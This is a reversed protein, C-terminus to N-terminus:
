MRGAFLSHPVKIKLIYTEGNQLFITENTFCKGMSVINGLLSNIGLNACPPNSFGYYLRFDINLYSCHYPSITACYYWLECSEYMIHTNCCTTSIHLHAFTYLKFQIKFELTYSVKQPSAPLRHKVYFMTNILLHTGPEWNSNWTFVERGYGHCGKAM